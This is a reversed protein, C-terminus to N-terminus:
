RSLIKVETRRNLAKGQKTKNTAVPRMEGYGKASVQGPSVGQKILYAMASEARAQSLKQNSQNDGDSDTHGGLEIRVTENMKIAEVLVDLAKFSEKRLKAKATEFFVGELKFSMNDYRLTYSVGMDDEPDGMPIMQPPCGECLRPGTLTNVWFSYNEGRPLEFRVVGNLGTVVDLETGRDGKLTLTDGVIMEGRMDTVILEMTAKSGTASFASVAGLLVVGLVSKKIKSLVM